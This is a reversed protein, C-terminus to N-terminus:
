MESSFKCLKVTHSKLFQIKVNVNMYYIIQPSAFFSVFRLKTKEFLLFLLADRSLFDDLRTTSDILGWFGEKNSGKLEGGGGVARANVPGEWPIHSEFFGKVDQALVQM